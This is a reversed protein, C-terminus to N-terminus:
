RLCSVMDPPNERSTGQRKARGRRRFGRRANRGAACGPIKGRPVAGCRPGKERLGTPLGERLRTEPMSFAWRLETLIVTSKASISLNSSERAKVGRGCKSHPGKLWKPVDGSPVSGTKFWPDWSRPDPGHRGKPGAGYFKMTGDKEAPRLLFLPATGSQCTKIHLQVPQIM